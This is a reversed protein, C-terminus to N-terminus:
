EAPPKSGLFHSPLPSNALIDELEPIGAEKRLLELDKGLAAFISHQGSVVYVTGNRSKRKDGTIQGVAGTDRHFVLDAKKFRRNM